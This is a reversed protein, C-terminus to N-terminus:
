SLFQMFEVMHGEPDSVSAVRLNYGEITRPPTVVAGGAAEAAAVTADVDDVMFALAGAGPAPASRNLYQMLALEVGGGEPDVSLFIEILAQDGEGDDFRRVHKLGLADCYFSELIAADRVILKTYAFSTIAM